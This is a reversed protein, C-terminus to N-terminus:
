QEEPEISEGALLRDRNKMYEDFDASPKQPEEAPHRSREFLEDRFREYVEVGGSIIARVVAPDDLNPTPGLKALLRATTYSPTKKSM